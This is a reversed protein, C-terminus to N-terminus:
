NLMNKTQKIIGLAMKIPRVALVLNKQLAGFCFPCSVPSLLEDMVARKRPQRGMVILLSKHSRTGCERELGFVVTTQLPLRKQKM